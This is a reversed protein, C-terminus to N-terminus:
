VTSSKSSKLRTAGPPAPWLSSTEMWRQGTSGLAAEIKRWRYRFGATSDVNISNIVLLYHM